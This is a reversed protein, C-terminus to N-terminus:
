DLGLLRAPNDAIMTRVTGESLGHGVLERGFHLLGQAPPPNNVQGFDTSLVCNEVGLREIERATQELPFGGWHDTHPLYCREIVAGLSVMEQQFDLSYGSLPLEPHAVMLREVGLRRAERFLIATEEAGLHGNNLVVGPHAAIVELVQLAEATLQEADALISVPDAPRARYGAAQEKFGAEGYYHLHNEAHITPMWVVAGGLALALEVAHPNIGGVFRNLVIGGRVTIERAAGPVAGPGAGSSAGAGEGPVGGFNAYPGAGSDLGAIGASSWSGQALRAREVTSGEHAKLVVGRMEAAAAQEVVERDDLLRPFISPSSHVHLDIAGRFWEPVQGSEQRM